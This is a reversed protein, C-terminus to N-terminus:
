ERQPTQASLFDVSATEAIVSSASRYQQAMARVESSGTQAQMYAGLQRAQALVTRGLALRESEFRRLSASLDDMECLSKALAAADAAAKTVGMGVHPRAVFAADGILVVRGDVLRPSELDYIAQVFPEATRVAIEAFQPALLRAADARMAAVVQPDLQGPPPPTQRRIGDVGTYLRPLDADESAPRYWVFNYHRRGPVAGGKTLSVPYGVMQEGEPLCFGFREILASCTAGSLESEPVLGRWAVYGAYIPKVEPLFQGRVASNIGDAGILLDCPQSSGDSFYATVTDGDQSYHDLAMGLRYDQEPFRTLLAHHIVSWSTLMQRLEYEEIVSGDRALVVRGPVTVGLSAVDEVGCASLAAHLEPHTVIGAGRGELGRMSRECITVEFGARRLFLGAFVGAISGGIVIARKRANPM